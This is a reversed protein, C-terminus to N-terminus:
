FGKNDIWARSLSEQKSRFMEMIMKNILLQVKRDYKEKQCGKLPFIDKYQIFKVIRKKTM